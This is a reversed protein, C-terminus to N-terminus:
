NNQMAFRSNYSPLNFIYQQWILIELLQHTFSFFILAHNSKLTFLVVDICKYGFEGIFM